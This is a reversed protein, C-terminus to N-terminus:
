QGLFTKKVQVDLIIPFEFTKTQRFLRKLSRDIHHPRSQSRLPEL